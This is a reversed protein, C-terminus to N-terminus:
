TRESATFYGTYPWPIATATHRWNHHEGYLVNYEFYVKKYLNHQRGSVGNTEYTITTVRDGPNWEVVELQEDNHGVLLLAKRLGQHAVLTISKVDGPIYLGSREWSAPRYNADGDSLLVLGIGADLRPTEVETNYMGGALIADEFGDRNIDHFAVALVPFIQAEAPLAMKEFTGGGRNLLLVSRFETVEKEYAEELKEGFLDVMTAHAYGHFTPFKAAIFPMQGYSGERGRLPVYDNNYAYSLMMDHSGNADFDGAFVKLPKERSTEYRSNLGLNGVVYDKLGDKNVDTEAVTFWWGIERDLGSDKAIDRFVGQENKFLGIPTWEGVAILDTWGDNDFDTAIIKNIAGFSALGPAVAETVNRLQGGENQYMFSPEPQPYKAPVFRNGIVVDQDGDRDYDLTAVSKGSYSFPGDSFPNEVKSFTGAGDNVYLRDTYYASQAEKENGGSVVFLDNDGDDDIDFLLAEMDEAERDRTLAASQKKEFGDQTQLFVHGPQGSAGGIFVDEKGDGNLDGTAIFPGLTSQKYPLLHEAAYDDYENERHQYPLGLARAEIPRFFQTEALDSQDTPETRAGAEKEFFEITQNARVKYREEVRGSPWVVAVTDVEEHRGLGFHAVNEVASLYGRVRSIEVTQFLGGHKITVKPFSESVSGTAKVRLYHGKSKESSLNRYLHAPQNNNSIVIDLDGDNDLDAHVAGNSFTPEDFGWKDSAIEFTLGGQNEFVINPLKENPIQAHLAVLEETPIKAPPPYRAYVARVKDHFDNDLTFETGNTVLVDKDADNDLDVMLAAWSWDSRALGTMHAVNQFTGNGVNLQLGNFMYAHHYGLEDVLYSVYKANVPSMLTNARVHDRPAMEVSFIDYHGDNNLDAIDVGMGAHPIQNTRQKIEDRFTGDKQNIYLADPLYYDNSIYIDLWGDQNVDSVVLGLGYAPVLLGAQETAEVYRNNEFRFLHCSSAHLVNPENKLYYQFERASYGYLPHENMVLVDLDGDKDYDFFASQTTLGKHDLGYAVAQEAFTVGNVGDQTYSVGQNIYLRNSRDYGLPGSQSVYIDLWGDNNVDAFTVGTAWGKNENVAARGSVDVFRLGGKNLYVRNQVQNGTFFLDDRGDNNLDAVGVGAGNYFYDFHFRSIESAIDEKLSNQFNIGSLEASILEFLTPNEAPVTAQDPEETSCGILPNILGFFLVLVRTCVSVAKNGANGEM